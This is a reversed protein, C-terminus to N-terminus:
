EEDDEIPPRETASLVNEVMRIMAVQAGPYMPPSVTKCKLLSLCPLLAERLLKIKREAELWRARFKSEEDDGSSCWTVFDGTRNGDRDKAAEVLAEMCRLVLDSDVM